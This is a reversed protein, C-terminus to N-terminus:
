SVPAQPAPPADLVRRVLNALTRITYPKTLWEAVGTGTTTDQTLHADFGTCLIIRQGPRLKLLRQAMDFGTMGPMTQDSVVLAFRDPNAQFRTLAEDGTAATEITYGLRRLGVGMSRTIAAEDDVFLVTENGPPLPADFAESDAPEVTRACLPLLIDFQTGRGPQSQVRIGGKHSKVIGHVTSLGLGTGEDQAKTTFFPEFIRQRTAADMGCGTDAVSLEAYRGPKLCFEASTWEAGATVERLTVTLTGGKDRMAHYANTCLNMMVQHIQGPDGMVPGCDAAISEHISITAPLSGRLLKLAEKIVPAMMLPHAKQEGRRSFTLIQRVLNAARQGGAMIEELFPRISSEASTDQLALESYGLLGSLINNFDHAIGGALTGIAEMKQAHRLQMALETERTLDRSFAFLYERGNFEIHSGSTSTPYTRGDRATFHAEFTPWSGSRAQQWTEAWDGPTIDPAIRFITLGSIDEAGYGLADMASKNAYVLRGERTALFVQERTNDLAFEIIRLNEEASKSKTIDAFTVVVGELQGNKGLIPEAGMSLWAVSGNARRIGTVTRPVSRKERLARIAVSEEGPLPSGDPRVMEWFPDACHHSEIDRAPLELIREAAPNCFVIHGDTRTQLVGESLTDFLTRLRAESQRLAEQAEHRETIDRLVAQFGRIVRGNRLLQLNQGVWRPPGDRRPIPFEHYFAKVDKTRMTELAGRVTNATAEDVLDFFPMGDLDSSRRGFLRAAAANILTFRGNADTAYFADMANEILHRYQAEYKILESQGQQFLSQNEFIRWLGAMAAIAVPVSALLLIHSLLDMVNDKPVTGAHILIRIWGWGALLAFVMSLPLARWEHWHLAMVLSMGLCALLLPIAFLLFPEAELRWLEVGVALLLPVAVVPLVRVFWPLVLRKGFAPESATFPENM